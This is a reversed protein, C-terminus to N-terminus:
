AAAQEEWCESVTCTHAVVATSAEQDIELICALMHALRTHRWGKQPLLGGCVEIPEMSDVALQMGDTAFYDYSDVHPQVLAEYEAPVRDGQVLGKQM